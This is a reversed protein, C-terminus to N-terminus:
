SFEYLAPTTFYSGSLLLSLLFLYKYGLVIRVVWVVPVYNKKSICVASSALRRVNVTKRKTKSARLCRVMLLLNREKPIERLVPGQVSPMCKRFGPFRKHTSADALSRLFFYIQVGGRGWGMM